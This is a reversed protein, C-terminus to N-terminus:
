SILICLHIAAPLGTLNSHTKELLALLSRPDQALGFIFFPFLGSGGVPTDRVVTLGYHFVVDAKKSISVGWLNTPLSIFFCVPVSQDPQQLLLDM